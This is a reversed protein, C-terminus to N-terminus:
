IGPHGSKQNIDWAPGLHGEKRWWGWWSFQNENENIEDIDVNPLLIARSMHTAVLIAVNDTVQTRAHSPIAQSKLDWRFAHINFHLSIIHM